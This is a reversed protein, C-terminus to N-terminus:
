WEIDLQEAGRPTKSWKVTLSYHFTASPVNLIRTVGVSDTWAIGMSICPQLGLTKSWSTGIKLDGIRESIEIPVSGSPFKLDIVMLTKNDIGENIVLVAAGLKSSFAVAIDDNLEKSAVM